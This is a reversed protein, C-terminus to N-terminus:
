YSVKLDLGCANLIGATAIVLASIAEDLAAEMAEQDTAVARVGREFAGRYATLLAVTQENCLDARSDVVHEVLAGASWVDGWVGWWGGHAALVDAPTCPVQRLAALVPEAVRAMGVPEPIAGLASTLAVAMFGDPEPLVDEVTDLDDLLELLDETTVHETLQM